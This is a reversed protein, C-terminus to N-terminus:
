PQGNSVQQHEQKVVHLFSRIDSASKLHYVHKCPESDVVYQRYRPTLRQHCLWLVRYSKLSGVLVPSNEPWGEPNVFLGKFLRKSVWWAHTLLPLDIFILTDAEAFREWATAVDGFGDIIWESRSLLQRHKHLYDDHPIEEGGPVYKITDIPYLPLYTIEALKRALTSKGGGANGFIAVKKM